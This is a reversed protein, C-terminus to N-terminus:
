RTARWYADVESREREMEANQRATERAEQEEQWSVLDTIEEFEDMLAELCPDCIVVDGVKYHQEGSEVKCVDCYEDQVTYGAEQMLEIFNKEM